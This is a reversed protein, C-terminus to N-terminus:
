NNDLEDIMDMWMDYQDIIYSITIRRGKHNAACHWVKKEPERHSGFYGTKATWGIGDKHRIYKDSKIDYEEFYGGNCDNYTFLVNYGHANANHHWGIYGNKPYYCALSNNSAGLELTLDECHRITENRNIREDYINKYDVLMSCDPWGSHNGNQDEVILHKHYDWSTGSKIDLSKNFKKGNRGLRNEYAIDYLLQEDVSLISNQINLLIDNINKNKIKLKNM